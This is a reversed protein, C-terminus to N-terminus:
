EESRVRLGNWRALRGARGIETLREEVSRREAEPTVLLLEDGGMLSTSAHPVSSEDGRIILSIFANRPLRLERVTCGILHSDKRPVHVQLLVADIEDLPAVEIDVDTAADPDVLGLLRGALSLTPGQVCTFVVVFVLVIDFLKEAEPIRAAMPITALIIPVAGRLGAWSVFAQHRPPMRFGSACLMVSIPRAVVTLFLGAVVGEFVEQWTLRELDALLGLMVFLGIQAMWGVGEAFSKTANRYPLRGNGIVVSAVYVAAFGSVGAWVGLGYALVAWSLAALAYLGSSPLSVRRTIRVGIWGMVLGLAIGGLLEFVISGVLGPIGGDPQHGSALGTMAVVVLVTPADNLGSEAELISRVRTPISVGRLVSFVAASDTPATVAGLLVAVIWPLQLVFHSFVAMLAISAGIGVTALLGAVGLAPKISSWKTSLGGEALILVLAAFGLGHALAAESFQIGFGLPGLMMGVLLFLLLAPLGLRSSIRAAFVALLAVAAGILLDLDFIPM